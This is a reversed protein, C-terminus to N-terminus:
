IVVPPTDNIMDKLLDEFEKEPLMQTIRQQKRCDKWTNDTFKKTSQNFRNIWAVKDGVSHSADALYPIVVPQDNNCKLPVGLRFAMVCSFLRTWEYDKINRRVGDKKGRIKNFFLHWDNSTRLVKCARGVSKFYEFEQPTEYPETDFCAIVGVDDSFVKQVDVLTSEIPKRKLDFDMSLYRILESTAFDTRNVKKALNRFKEFSTTITKIRGGRTMTEHFFHSRDELSDPVFGSVYSNHAMVGAKLGKSSDGVNMSANGRTTLNLLDNQEHKMSWMEDSGTLLVRSQKFYRALGFLDLNVLISEPVDSIFGDTTVSYVNYGLSSIQNISAVLVARVGATILCAHVPSTIRSGGINEMGETMASWSQKDIVDQAAKGYLGNNSLKMLLDMLSGKGFLQKALNRDNILQKVVHYLSHSANGNEDALITGFYLRKVRVTAGLKLALWLEPASAYVGDLDGSTRPYILSGNVTVPICPVVVDKPFEFTVYAFVPDFPTRIMTSNLIQNTVEFTIPNSWDVDPVLAMCTPYANELDYDFTDKEYYGPKLCGNFGGKYANRAFEQLLWADNSIPELATNELYGSKAWPAISLGKKVKHLGRYVRNFGADDDEKLGLAQKIVPVAVRTSASTITVPLVTNYGWLESSYLLTITADNVAYEAFDIIDQLMFSLMDDKTFPAPVDLKPVGITKGITYLSKSKDSAFCMTDRVSVRFPYLNWYKSPQPNHTYFEKLTVLGGQVSSVKKMLDKEYLADVDLTTLDATGSHCILTVPIANKNCNTYDNDYGLPVGNYHTIPFKESHGNLGDVYQYQCKRTKGFSLLANKYGVDDCHNIAEDFDFFKRLEYSGKKKNLVPVKWCRTSYYSVGDVSGNGFHVGIGWKEVIYSMILSFCLRKEDAAMVLVEVVEDPKDPHVFSFQWSLIHRQNDNDYYFETDFGVLFSPEDFRMQVLSQLQTFSAVVGGVAGGSPSAAPAFNSHTVGMTSKAGLTAGVTKGLNSPTKGNNSNNTIKQMKLFASFLPNNKSRYFVYFPETKTVRPATTKITDMIWGNSILQNILHKNQFISNDAKAKILYQPKAM